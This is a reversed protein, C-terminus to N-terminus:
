QLDLRALRIWGVGWRPDNETDRVPISFAIRVPTPQTQSALSSYHLDDKKAFGVQNARLKLPTQIWSQKRQPHAVEGLGWSMITWQQCIWTCVTHVARWPLRTVRPPLGLSTGAQALYRLHCPSAQIYLLQWWCCCDNPNSPPLGGVFLALSSGLVQLSVEPLSTQVSTSRSVHLKLALSSEYSSPWSIASSTPCPQGKSTLIGSTM